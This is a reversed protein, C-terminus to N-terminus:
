EDGEEGYVYSNPGLTFRQHNYVASWEMAEIAVGESQLHDVLKDVAADLRPQTMHRFIRSSPTLKVTVELSQRWAPHKEQKGNPV